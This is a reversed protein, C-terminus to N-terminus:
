DIYKPYVKSPDRIDQSKGGMLSTTSSGFRYRGSQLECESTLVIFQKVSILVAFTSSIFHKFLVTRVYRM